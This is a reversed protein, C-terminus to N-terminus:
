MKERLFEVLLHWRCPCTKLMCLTLVFYMRNGTIVPEFKGVVFADGM